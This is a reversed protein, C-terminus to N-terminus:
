KSLCMGISGSKVDYDFADVCRTLTDNYYMTRRDPSWALGNSISIREVHKTVRRDPHLCYLSGSEPSFRSPPKDEGLTGILSYYVYTCGHQYETIQM